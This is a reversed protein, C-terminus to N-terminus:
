AQYEMVDSDANELKHTNYNTRQKHISMFILFFIGHGPVIVVKYWTHHHIESTRDLSIHCHFIKISKFCFGSYSNSIQAM